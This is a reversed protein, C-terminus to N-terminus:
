PAPKKPTSCAHRRTGPPGNERNYDEIGDSLMRPVVEGAVITRAKVDRAKVRPTLPKLMKGCRPCPERGSMGEKM